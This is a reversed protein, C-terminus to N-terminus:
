HVHKERLKEKIRRKYTQSWSTEGSVATGFLEQGMEYSSRKQQHAAIYQQLHTDKVIDTKTRRETSALRDVEAELDDPLRVTLM